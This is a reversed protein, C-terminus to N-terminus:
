TTKQDATELHTDKVNRCSTVSVDESKNLAFVPTGLGKLTKIRFFEAGNVNNLSFLGCRRGAGPSRLM